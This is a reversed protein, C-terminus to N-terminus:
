AAQLQVLQGVSGEDILRKCTIYPEEFRRQHNFTLQMGARVAAEHMRRAEGFTPAMPKECHVARIGAEACAIVMEAHLHPWTCVSVVDPKVERLMTAYDTYVRANPLGQEEKFAEANEARIDALAVVECQNTRYAYAHHRSIAAGTSGEQGRPRGTGIIAATYRQSPM